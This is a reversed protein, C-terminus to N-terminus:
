IHSACIGFGYCINKFLDKSVHCFHIHPNIFQGIIIIISISIAHSSFGNVMSFLLEQLKPIQSRNILALMPRHAIVCALRMFLLLFKKLSGCM